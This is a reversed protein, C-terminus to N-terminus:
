ASMFTKLAGALNAVVELEDKSIKGQVAARKLTDTVRQVATLPEKKAKSITAVKPAPTQTVM